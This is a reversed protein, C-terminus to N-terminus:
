DIFTNSGLTTSETCREQSATLFPLVDCVGGYAADHQLTFKDWLRTFGEMCSLSLSLSLSTAVWWVLARHWFCFRSHFELMAKSQQGLRGKKPECLDPRFGNIACLDFAQYVGLGRRIRAKSLPIHHPPRCPEYPSLSRAEHGSTDFSM